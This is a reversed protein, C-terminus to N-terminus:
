PFFLNLLYMSVQTQMLDESGLPLDPLCHPPALHLSIIGRKDLKGKAESAARQAIEAVEVYYLSREDRKWM